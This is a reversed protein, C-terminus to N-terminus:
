TRLGNLTSITAPIHIFQKGRVEYESFAVKTAESANSTAVASAETASNGVNSSDFEATAKDSWDQILSVTIKQVTIDAAGVTTPVSIPQAFVDVMTSNGIYKQIGSYDVYQGMAIFQETFSKNMGAVTASGVVTIKMGTTKEDPLSLSFNRLTDVIPAKGLRLDNMVSNFKQDLSSPAEPTPTVDASLNSDQGRVHLEMGNPLSIPSSLSQNVSLEQRKSQDGYASNDAAQAHMVGEGVAGGIMAAAVGIKIADKAKEM